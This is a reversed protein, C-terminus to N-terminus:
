QITKSGKNYILQGYTHPNIEPHEIQEMSKYNQNQALVMSNQHSYSKLITQLLPASEGLEM